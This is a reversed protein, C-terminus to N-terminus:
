FVVWGTIQAGIFYILSASRVVTIVQNIQAVAGANVVLVSVALASVVLYDSTCCTVLVQISPKTIVFQPAHVRTLQM